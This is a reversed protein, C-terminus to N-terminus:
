NSMKRYNSYNKNTVYCTVESHKQNSPSKIDFLKYM